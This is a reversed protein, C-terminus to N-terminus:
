QQVRRVIDKITLTDVMRGQVKATETVVRIKAGIWKGTQGGLTKVLISRNASKSIIMGYETEDFWLVLVKKRYPKQAMEVTELTTDKVTLTKGSQVMDPHLWHYLQTETFVNINM